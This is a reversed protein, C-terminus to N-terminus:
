KTRWTRTWTDTGSTVTVKVKLRQGGFTKVTLKGTTPNKKIKCLRMDGRTVTTCKARQTFAESSTVSNVLVTKGKMKVRKSAEAADVEFDSGVSSTGTEIIRYQSPDGLFELYNVLSVFENTPPGMELPGPAGLLPTFMFNAARTDSMIALASRKVEVVSNGAVGSVFRVEPYIGSAEATFDWATIADPCPSEPDTGQCKSGDFNFWGSVTGGGIFTGTINYTLVEAQAPTTAGVVETATLAGGAIAAVRSKTM